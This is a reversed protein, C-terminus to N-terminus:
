MNHLIRELHVDNRTLVQPLGQFGVEISRVFDFGPGRNDLRDAPVISFPDASRKPIGIKCVAIHDKVDPVVPVPQYADDVISLRCLFPLRLAM